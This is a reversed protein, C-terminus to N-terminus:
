ELGAAATANKAAANTGGDPSQAELQSAKLKLTTDLMARHFLEQSRKLEQLRYYKAQYAEEEALIREREAAAIAEREAEQREKEKAHAAKAAKKM